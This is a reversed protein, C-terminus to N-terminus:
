LDEKTYNLNFLNLTAYLLSSSHGCSVVFFDRNFYNDDNRDFKLNKYITYFIPAGSLAVGSHGSKSNSIEECAVVRLNNVIKNEIM